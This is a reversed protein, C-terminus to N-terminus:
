SDSEDKQMAPALSDEEGCLPCGGSTRIQEPMVVKSCSKCVSTERSFASEVMRTTKFNGNKTMSM